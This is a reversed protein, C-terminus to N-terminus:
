INKKVFEKVKNHDALGVILNRKEEDVGVLYENSKCFEYVKLFDSYNSFNSYLYGETETIRNRKSEWITIQDAVTPPLIKGKTHSKLYHNIQQSTIGREFAAFVSHESIQGVLLNPLQYNLRSFISLIAMDHPSETYGYIKYNTEVVLYEHSTSVENRFLLSFTDYLYVEGNSLVCFGLKSLTSFLKFAVKDNGLNYRRGQAGIECIVLIYKLEEEESKSIFKITSLLLFWLQEKKTKLLFGFGHHTINRSSDILETFMLFEDYSNKNHFRSPSVIYHVLEDFKNSKDSKEPEGGEYPVEFAKLISLRFEENLFIQRKKKNILNIRKLIRLSSSLEKSTPYEFINVAEVLLDFVLQATYDDLIQLLAIAFHPHKYLYKQSDISTDSLYEIISSYKKDM